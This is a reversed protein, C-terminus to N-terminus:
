RNSKVKGKSERRPVRGRRRVAAPGPSLLSGPPPRRPSPPRPIPAQRIPQQAISTEQIMGAEKAPDFDGGTDDSETELNLRRWAARCRTVLRTIQDFDEHGLTVTGADTKIEIDLATVALKLSYEGEGDEEGRLRAYIDMADIM